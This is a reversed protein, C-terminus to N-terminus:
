STEGFYRNTLYGRVQAEDAASLAGSFVILATIDMNAFSMTADHRTGIKLGTLSESGANGSAMLVGDRYYSSTAGNSIISWVHFDFDSQSSESSQLIAGSTFSWHYSQSDFSFLGFDHSSDAGHIFSPYTDMAADNKRFVVFVTNPQAMEAFAVALYDDDGDFRLVPFGNLVDNVVTPQAAGTGQAFDDSGAKDAWASVPDGTVGSDSEYWHTPYVGGDYTPLEPTWYKANLYGEIQLRDAESVAGSYILLAAIDLQSPDIGTHSLAGILLATSYHTGTNGTSEFEVGDRFASSTATNFVLTFIHWNSDRTFSHFSNGAWMRVNDPSPSYYNLFHFRNTADYVNNGGFYYATDAAEGTERDKMVAFITFPQELSSALPAKGICDNTGDFRVVPRGNLEELVLTPQLSGSAQALNDRGMRDNWQSVPSGAIGYDAEYWNIPILGGETTASAPTWDGSGDSGIKLSVGLSLGM